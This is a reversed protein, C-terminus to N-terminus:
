SSKSFASPIVVSIEVEVGLGQRMERVLHVYNVQDEPSGGEELVGPYEWYLDVGHFAYTEMFGIVSKIFVSRSAPSQAMASFSSSRVAWGGVTISVKLSPNDHNRETATTWLKVDTPSLAQIRHDDGFLAFAYHL